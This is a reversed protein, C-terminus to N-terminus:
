TLVSGPQSGLHAERVSELWLSFIFLHFMILDCITVPWLCELVSGPLYKGTVVLSLLCVSFYIEAM